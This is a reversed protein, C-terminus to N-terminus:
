PYLNKGEYRKGVCRRNREIGALHRTRDSAYEEAEKKKIRDMLSEWDLWRRSYELWAGILMALWLYLVVSCAGVVIWLFTAHTM